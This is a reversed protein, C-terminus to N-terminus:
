CNCLNQNTQDKKSAYYKNHFNIIKTMNDMCNYTVKTNNKNFVKHYKHNKEIVTEKVVQFFTKWCEHKCKQQFSFQVMYHKQFPEEKKKTIDIRRSLM